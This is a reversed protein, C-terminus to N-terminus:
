ESRGVGEDFLTIAGPRVGERGFARSAENEETRVQRLAQQGLRKVFVKGTDTRFEIRRPLFGGLDRSVVTIRETQMFSEIFQINREPVSAGTSMMRLVHGGGFLKAQLRRRDGGAKQMAGILLDMAHIGYHSIGASGGSSGNVPAPLMFHNMGGVGTVPDRLCVAICSGLLTKIAAPERTAYVQGIHITVEPRQVVPEAM